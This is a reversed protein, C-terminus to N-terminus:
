PKDGKTPSRPNGAVTDEARLGYANLARQPNQPRDNVRVEFHLHAGTARGTAGVLAVVDGARVSQGPKVSVESNHGYLTTVGGGHDIEVANGYGGRPGVARVIGDKAALVATGEPAAVDVGTHYRLTGDIPDVREGFGSTVRPQVPAPEDTPLSREIMGALGLGGAKAVADALTEVFLDSRLHSGASEGGSFAHSAELLQKILTSELAQLAEARDNALDRGPVPKM